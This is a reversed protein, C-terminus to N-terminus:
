LRRVLCDNYKNKLKNSFETAEDKIAFKGVCVISHKGKPLVFIEYGKSRLRKAEMQAKEKEKFSAVQITFTGKGKKELSPASVPIQKHPKEQPQAGAPKLSSVSKRTKTNGAPTISREGTKDSSDEPAPLVTVTVPPEALAGKVIQKGREVGFSFFLVVAMVFIICLVITNEVSLTLDKLLYRPRAARSHPREALFPFLEFQTHETAMTREM